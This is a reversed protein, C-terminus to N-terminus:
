TQIEYEMDSVVQPDCGVRLAGWHREGIFIPLAFESLIEGDDRRYTHLLVPHTNTAAKLSSPDDFIRRDRSHLVDIAPDGTLPRSFFSNHTGAYGRTDVCLAFVCGKLDRVLNDYIPQLEGAFADCYATRYKQPYTGPVPRYDRDFIDIGKAAMGEM